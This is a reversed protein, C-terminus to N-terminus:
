IFEGRNKEYDDIEQEMMKYIENEGAKKIRKLGMEVFSYDDLFLGKRVLAISISLQLNNEEYFKLAVKMTQNFLDTYELVEYYEMRLLRFIFNEFLVFKIKNIWKTFYEYKELERLANIFLIEAQEVTMAYAIAVSLFELDRANWTDLDILRNIIPEAMKCLKEFDEHKAAKESIELIRLGDRLEDDAMTDANKSIFKSIKQKLEAIEKKQHSRSIAFLRNLLGKKIAKDEASM